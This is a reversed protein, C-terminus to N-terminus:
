WKSILTTTNYNMETKSISNTFYVTVSIKKMGLDTGSDALSGDVYNVITQRQFNYLFNAADDSLRHKAEITGTGINDYGLSYLEEIKDQTLYSAKTANESTKNIALGFPFAQMLSIFAVMLITIAVMSEILSMGSNNKIFFNM